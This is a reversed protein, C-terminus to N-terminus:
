LKLNWFYFSYFPAVTIKSRMFGSCSTRREVQITPVHSNKTETVEWKVLRSPQIRAVIHQSIPFCPTFCQMGGLGQQSIVRPLVDVSPAMVTRISSFKTCPHSLLSALPSIIKASPPNESALGQGEFWRFPTLHHSIKSPNDRLVLNGPVFM